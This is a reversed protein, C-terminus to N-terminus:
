HSFLVPVTMSALLTRTVGGLVLETMRPHGYAGAVIMDSGLDAAQSLLTEAVQRHPVGDLTHTRVEVGHRALVTAIEAGPLRPEGDENGIPNITLLDCREARRLFPLADRVARGASRSCDWAVLPRQGLTARAGIYPAVLVPTGATMLLNGVFGAAVFARADDPDNQGIVVLDAHRAHLPMAVNPHEDNCRWEAKVGARATATEFYQQLVHGTAIRDQRIQELTEALEAKLYFSQPDAVYNSYWGILHAEHNVALQLAFDIRDRSCRGLDLHVLVTRYSM